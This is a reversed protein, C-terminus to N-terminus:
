SVRKTLQVSVQNWESTSGLDWGCERKPLTGWQTARAPRSNATYSLSARLKSIKDKRQRGLAPNCTHTVVGSLNTVRLWRGDLASLLVNDKHKTRYDSDCLEKLIPPSDRRNGCGSGWPYCLEKRIVHGGLDWVTVTVPLDCTPVYDCSTWLTSVYTLACTTASLLPDSSLETSHATLYRGGGKHSDWPDFEPCGQAGHAKTTSSNWPSM